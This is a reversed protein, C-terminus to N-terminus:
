GLKFIRKCHEHIYRVGKTELKILSVININLDPAYLVRDISIVTETTKLKVRGLGTIPIRGSACELIGSYPTIDGVFMHVDCLFHDTAGSYLM